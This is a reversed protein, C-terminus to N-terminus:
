NGKIHLRRLTDVITKIDGNTNHLGLSFRVLPPSKQQELLYFHCCFSGSRAMIGAGSLFIALRHAEHESSYFSIVPRPETNMVTISSIGQLGEYLEVSLEQLYQKPTKGFPKVNQLWKVAEGLAIIEAYAQLGPELRTAIDQEPLLTFSNKTVQQVMGGGVFQVSLSQLLHKAGVVVGLSPAYMKHASFCIADAHVGQLLEYSHAMAQAADVIVIGGAKHTDRVLQALNHLTRGDINSVVNVVVIAKHLQAATYTLSGDVNRQLVLREIGLREAATQTPLFVSNHEIDSTIIRKYTHAPLQQLLMNIGYTTNLTFSVAYDKESLRLLDLVAKRTKTCRRRCTSGM